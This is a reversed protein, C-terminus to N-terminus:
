EDEDELGSHSTSSESEWSHKFKFYNAYVQDVDLYAAGYGTPSEDNRRPPLMGLSEILSLIDECDGYNLDTLKIIEQVAESRKM